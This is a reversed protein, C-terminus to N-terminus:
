FGGAAKIIFEHEMLVVTKNVYARLNKQLLNNTKRCFFITHHIYCFLRFYDFNCATIKNSDNVLKQYKMFLYAGVWTPTSM